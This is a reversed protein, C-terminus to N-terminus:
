THHPDLAIKPVRRQLDDIEESKATLVNEADALQHRTEELLGKFQGAEYAKEGLLNKYHAAESTKEQLLNKLHAALSTKEELLNKYHAALSSQEQLRTSADKWRQEMEDLSDQTHQARSTVDVLRVLWMACEAYYGRVMEKRGEDARVLESFLDGSNSPPGPKRLVGLGSHHRFTFTPFEAQLETWLRWVEFENRVEVDHLLLVGGPRLKPFWGRFDHAVAAYTHLGDIHLLDISDNEFRGIAEDFTMRLLNSFSSYNRDNYAKVDEFVEEGYLGAHEDGKWTDVAYCTCRIGSELISQCMGFYSEGYHTGLEVLTAPRLSGILDRAFPLHGLWNNFGPNLRKPNFSHSPLTSPLMLSWQLTITSLLVANHCWGPPERNCGRFRTLSVHQNENPSWVGLRVRYDGPAVESPIDVSRRSYVFGLRDPVEGELPYDGQFRMEGRGDLFHIFVSWGAPIETTHWALDLVLKGPEPRHAEFHLLTLTGAFEAGFRRLRIEKILRGLFSPRRSFNASQSVPIIRFDPHAALLECVQDLSVLPDSAPKANHDHLM